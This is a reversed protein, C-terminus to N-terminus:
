VTPPTYNGLTDPWPHIIASIPHNSTISLDESYITDFRKARDLRKVLNGNIFVDTDDTFAQLSVIQGAYTNFAPFHYSNELAHQPKNEIFTGFLVNEQPPEVAGQANIKFVISFSNTRRFPTTFSKFPKSNRSKTYSESPWDGTGFQGQSNAGNLTRWMMEHKEQSFSRTEKLGYQFPDVDNQLHCNFYSELSNNNALSIIYYEVYVSIQFPGHDNYEYSLNGLPHSFYQLFNDKFYGNDNLSVANTIERRIVQKNNIAGSLSGVMNLTNCGQYLNIPASTKIVATHQLSNDQKFNPWEPLEIIHLSDKILNIEEYYNLGAIEIQACGSNLAYLYLHNSSYYPRVGNDLLTYDLWNPPVTAFSQGPKIQGITSLTTLAFLCLVIPALSIQKPAKSKKSCRFNSM